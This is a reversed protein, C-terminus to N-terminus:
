MLHSYLLLAFPQLHSSRGLAIAYTVHPQVEEGSESNTNGAGVNHLYDALAEDTSEAADIDRCWCGSTDALPVPMPSTNADELARTYDKHRCITQLKSSVAFSTISTVHVLSLVGQAIKRQQEELVGARCAATMGQHPIFWSLLGKAIRGVIDLSPFAHM